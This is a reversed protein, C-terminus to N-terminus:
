GRMLTQANPLCIPGLRLGALLLTTVPPTGAAAKSGAQRIDYAAAADSWGGTAAPIGFYFCLM